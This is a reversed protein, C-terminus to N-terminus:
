WYLQAAATPYLGIDPSIEGGAMLVVGNMLLTVTQYSVPTALTGAPSWTGSSPDYIEAVAAITNYENTIGGAVLVTGNPLLTATHNARPTALSGTTSWTGAVPDYLSCAASSGPSAGDVNGGAVLVKGNPLVTATQSVLLSIPNTAAASWTGAVPDYLQDYPFGMNASGYYTGGDVLIKGNGLLTATGGTTAQILNGTAAWTGSVPDYLESTAGSVALVKGNPLLTATHGARATTLSGTLSWIGTAPNYLEVSAMATGAGDFGGAVLVTGDALLTATHGWRATTLSGTASWRGSVPDYLEASATVQTTLGGSTGVMGGAVLVKGNPLLTATHKARSMTLSGTPFWTNTTISLPASATVSGIAATITTSGLAVGTIIGTTPGVTAISTASSSWNASTSVNMTTGDSYTGTATLQLSLGIGSSAPSPTIAISEVVASTVTLTATGSVSGSSATIVASGPAVATVLGSTANVRAIAPASSTWTVTNTLDLTSTDSFTGTATFQQALGSALSPTTPTIAISVLDSIFSVKVLNSTSNALYITLVGNPFSNTGPTLSVTDGTNFTVAGTVPSGNVALQGASAHVSIGAFQAVVSAPLTFTTTPTADPIQFTFKGIVGDGAQAIWESIDAASFAVGASAYEATLNAAIATPNVAKAAAVLAAKTATNTIVGNAGIDSQFNAILQNLPGASNGYVFLCSVATLIHDGDTSGSLDLADFSGYSGAPINLAALVETEAQTRAAAFTMGSSMLKQVRQYELTTLLNVNLVSDSTLDAYGTLTVTATSVANQVEDFYYGTANMGIYQSTFTSTPSFAGLDTTVQYSFQQGTPSLSANLEQATVTSGKILPGKQALGSTATYTPPPAAGSGSGGGGCATVLLAVSALLSIWVRRRALRLNWHEM